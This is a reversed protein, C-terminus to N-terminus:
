KPGPVPPPQPPWLEEAIDNLGLSLLKKRSPKGTTLEWDLAGLNCCDQAEINATVGALPGETLPPNGTIRPHIAWKQENIGERLNFAHRMNVIRESTKVLEEVTYTQGTVANMFGVMKQPVDPAGGFGYGVMCLGLSNVLQKGFSGPGFGATHRGPTADMHYGAFTIRGQMMLKPDHMGLEQGGIHVAFKEAGKGIRQAALKVGDALVDGLGERRALKEAMEVMAKHNGWRLEIGGTDQKTLLGNEYCETAFAIVTGASITDLGYRNCIDNVKNISDPDSNGCNVGFSGQTEYEPRRAGAAYKYQGTGEKLTAKCAIPCHWCGSLKEVYSAVLDAEFGKRDPVDVIGVGGWNKVPTDGTHASNFTMGSTGYKHFREMFSQGGPGPIQLSKIHEMRLKQLTEKDAVTVEMKGKAVVAKLKKSGMVAGLGSRGAASGRDTMICSIL